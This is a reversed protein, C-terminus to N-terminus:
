KKMYRTMAITSSIAGIIIGIIVEVIVAETVFWVTITPLPVGQFFQELPFIIADKYYTNTIFFIFLLVIASLFAGSAGYFAGELIFPGKVYESSAGVLRMIEIEEAQSNITIAITIVVIIFSVIGLFIILGIGIGNIVSVAQKLFSVVSKFYLINDIQGNSQSKLKYVLTAIDQLDSLNKTSIDYSPPLANADVASVLSPNQKKLFQEFRKYAQDKSVYQISAVKGTDLIDTKVQNMYSASTSPNFFVIIQSKSEYYHLIVNVTYTTLGFISIVFFTLTMIAISAFSLWGNRFIHQYTYKILRTIRIM